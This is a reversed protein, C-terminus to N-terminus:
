AVLRAIQDLLAVQDFEGKAVYGRAGVERGRARDAPSARSTVLIAPTGRLDPDRQVQEIFTFGDMGPMEVDVLFLAYRAARARALGDEASSALDVEYGAAELISKELMRTTVSDDIVLVRAHHQPPAEIARPRAAVLGAPDLVLQPNGDADLSAGGVVPDAPALEPLARVVVTATGILRGVGLAVLRGGDEVVVASWAARGTAPGSRGLLTGLPLFPILKGDHVVAAGAPTAVIDAAAIRLARRVADLPITAIAGADEVALAALAALQVPVELEFTTGAGPESAAGVTGDLRAAAERVVDLGVGRGSIETVTAASTIGGRLL